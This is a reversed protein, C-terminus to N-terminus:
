FWSCKMLVFGKQSFFNLQCSANAGGIVGKLQQLLQASKMNTEHSETLLNCVSNKM